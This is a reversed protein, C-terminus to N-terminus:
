SGGLNHWVILSQEGLNVGIIDTRGDHDLDVATASSVTGTTAPVPNAAFTGDGRGLLLTFGAGKSNPPPPASPDRTADPSMTTVIDTRGDGNVDATDVENTGTGIDYAVPAALRGGPRGLLVDAQHRAFEAVVVDTVGDGNFDGTAVDNVSEGAATDRATRFGGDGRGDLVSLSDPLRGFGGTVLDPVHDGTLDAIDLGQPGPGVSYRREPGFRGAGLGLRVTVGAAYNDATVLDTKGDRNLDAADIETPGYGTTLVEPKGLTGDGTNLFVVIHGIPNGGSVALDPKHDGNLDAAVIAFALMYPVQPLAYETKPGFTGDGKGLFLDVKNDMGVVAADQNGDGNFDAHDVRLPRTSAAYEAPSSFTVAKPTIARAAARAVHAPAAAATGGLVTAAAACITAARRWTTQRRMM